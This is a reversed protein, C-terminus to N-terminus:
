LSLIIVNYIFQFVVYSLFFYINCFIRYSKISLCWGQSIHFSVLTNIAKSTPFIDIAKRLQQIGAPGPGLALALELSLGASITNFGPQNSCRAMSHGFCSM